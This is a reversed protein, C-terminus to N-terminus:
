RFRPVEILPLHVEYQLMDHIPRFHAHTIILNNTWWRKIENYEKSEDIEFLYTHAIQVIM